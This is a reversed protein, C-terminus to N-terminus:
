AMDPKMAASEDLPGGRGASRKRGTRQKRGRHVGGLGEFKTVDTRLGARKGGKGLGIM